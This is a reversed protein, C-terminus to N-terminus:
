TGTRAGYALFPAFLNRTSRWQRHHMMNLCEVQVPLPLLRRRADIHGPPMCLLCRGRGWLSLHAFDVGVNQCVRRCCARRMWRSSRCPSSEDPFHLLRQTFAPAPRSNRREFPLFCTRGQRLYPHGPTPFATRFATADIRLSMRWVDAVGGHIRIRAVRARAWNVASSRKCSRGRAM